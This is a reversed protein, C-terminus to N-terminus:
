GLSHACSKKSRAEEIRGACGIATATHVTERKPPTNLVWLAVKVQGTLSRAQSAGPPVYSVGASQQLSYLFAQVDWALM